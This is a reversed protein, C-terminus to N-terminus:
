EQDEEFQKLINSKTNCNEENTDLNINDINEQSNDLDLLNNGIHKLEYKAQPNMFM